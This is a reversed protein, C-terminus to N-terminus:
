YSNQVMSRTIKWTTNQIELNLEQEIKFTNFFKIPNLIRYSANAYANHYNTYYIIGLDNIDYDKSLYKGSLIYRYKGSTKAFNLATKFGSYDEITNISSYKFDGSLNYTNSKTNLDFLLASVNADRFGGNRTTNTNVFSVSSNQNFRQDFVLVNYNTLPEIVEKRTENTDNNRITAYTKETVANM